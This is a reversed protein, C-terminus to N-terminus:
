PESSFSCPKLRLGHEEEGFGHVSIKPVLRTNFIDTCPKQSSSQVSFMAKIPIGIVACPERATYRGFLFVARVFLFM